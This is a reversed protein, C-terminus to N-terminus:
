RYYCEYILDKIESDTVPLNETVYEGVQSELFGPNVYGFNDYLMQSLYKYARAAPPDKLILDANSETENRGYGLLSLGYGKSSFILTKPSVPDDRLEILRDIEKDIMTKFNDFEDDTKVTMFQPAAMIYGRKKTTIGFVNEAPIDGKAVLDRLVTNTYNDRVRGTDAKKLDYASLAGNYVLIKDKGSEEVWRKVAPEFSDYKATSDDFLLLSNDNESPTVFQGETAAGSYNYYTKMRKKTMIAGEETQIPKYQKKFASWYEDLYGEETQGDLFEERPADLVQAIQTASIVKGLSYVGKTDQGSQLFAFVPFLAFINSIRQNEIPDSVKVVDPNALKILDDHYMNIDDPTLVNESFRLNRSSRNNVYRLSSLVRYSRKLDPYMSDIEIFKKAYGNIDKMMFPINIKNMLATDRLYDEYARQGMRKDFTEASEKELPQLLLKLAKVRETFDATTNYSVYPIMHRLAEREYVFKYYSNKSVETSGSKFYNESVPALGFEDRFSEKSYAKSQFDKNIKAFDIYMVYGDKEKKIFAGYDLKPIATIDTSITAGKYPAKIDFNKADYVYRQFMYSTFDNRFANIFQEKSRFVGPMEKRYNYNDVEENIFMRFESSDRLPFMGSLLNIMFPQVNFSGISTNKEIINRINEPIRQNTDLKYSKALKERADYMSTTKTTDFNMSLKVETTAGSMDELELFHLFARMDYMPVESDEMTGMIRGDLKNIDFINDPSTELIAPIIKTYLTVKQNKSTLDGYKNLGMEKLMERRASSRYQKADQASVGMTVGFTSKMYRQKEVYQKIVPQSVFAVAQDLPVGAQILFLLTPSVEINGQIDFIWADKAVDVWGNIMQSIIKAINNKNNVDYLAALSIADEGKVKITNHPMRITQYVIQTAIDKGEKYTMEFNPNLYFNIRNFISNYTNDVAGLGLTKKGINNSIQKYRNYGLEFIRTASIRKKGKDPDMYSEGNNNLTDFSNYNRASEYYREALPTLLDTSNPTVLETFNQEISLIDVVSKLLENEIGKSSGSAIAVKENDIADMIPDLEDTKIKKVAASINYLGDFLEDLQENVSDLSQNIVDYNTVNYSLEYTLNTREEKLKAIADKIEKRVNITGEEEERQLIDMIKDQVVSKKKYLKDLEERRTEEQGEYRSDYKVLSVGKSTAVISPFMMTLKDIDFDSGSKGVIETPLIIMNGANEPLFEYVEAFEMSNLGQVPIRVGSITVMQRNEGENLWAEDRILENLAQLTTIKKEKALKIVDPHKLLKKFDGQIAIKVKMAATTGDPNKRYFPLFNTGYRAKEEETPKRINAPEFGAGSVQILAEGNIKQRVLRKYVMATLLREIRDASPHLSLDYV